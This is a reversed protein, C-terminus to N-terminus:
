GASRRRGEALPSQSTTDVEPAVAALLLDRRAARRELGRLAAFGAGILGVFVRTTLVRLKHTSVVYGEDGAM